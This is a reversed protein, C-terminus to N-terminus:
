SWLCWKSDGWPNSPVLIDIGAWVQKYRSSSSLYFHKGDEYIYGLSQAFSTCLPEYVRYVEAAASPQPPALGAFKRQAIVAFIQNVLWRRFRPCEAHLSLPM